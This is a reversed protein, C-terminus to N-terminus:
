FSPWPPALHPDSHDARPRDPRVQELRDGRALGAGRRPDRGNRVDGAALVMEGVERMAVAAAPVDIRERDELVSGVDHDLRGRRRDHAGERRAPEM